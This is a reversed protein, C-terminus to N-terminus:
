VLAKLFYGLILESKIKTSDIVDLESTMQSNSKTILEFNEKDNLSNSSLKEKLDDV